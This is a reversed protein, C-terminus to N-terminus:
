QQTVTIPVMVYMPQNSLNAFEAPVAYPVPAGVAGIYAKGAYGVRVGDNTDAM